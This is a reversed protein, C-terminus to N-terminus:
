GEGNLEFGADMVGVEFDEALVRDDKLGRAQQLRPDSLGINGLDIPTDFDLDEALFRVLVGYKLDLHHRQALILPHHVVWVPVSPNLHHKGLIIHLHSMSQQHPLLIPLGSLGLIHPVGVEEVARILIHHLRLTPELLRHLVLPGRSNLM